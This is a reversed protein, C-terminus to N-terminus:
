NAGADNDAREALTATRTATAKMARPLALATALTILLGGVGAVVFTARPSTLDLLFGGLVYSLGAAVGVAGYLNGFVRGLMARPV